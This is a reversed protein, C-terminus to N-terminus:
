KGSHHDILAQIVDDSSLEGQSWKEGLEVSLKSPEPMGAIRNLADAERLARERLERERIDVSSTMIGM